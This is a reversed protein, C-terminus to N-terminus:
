TFVQFGTPQNETRCIAEAKLTRSHASFHNEFSCKSLKEISKYLILNRQQNRKFRAIWIRISRFPKFWDNNLM